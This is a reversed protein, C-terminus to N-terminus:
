RNSCGKIDAFEIGLGPTSFFFFSDTKNRYHTIVVHVINFFFIFSRTSFKPFLM